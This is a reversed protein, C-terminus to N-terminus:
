GRREVLNSLSLSSYAYGADRKFFLVPLRTFCALNFIEIMEPHLSLDDTEHDFGCLLNEEDLILLRLILSPREGRFLLVISVTPHRGKLQILQMIEGITNSDTPNVKLIISHESPEFRQHRHHNRESRPQCASTRTASRKSLQTSIPLQNLINQKLIRYVTGPWPESSPSRGLTIPKIIM